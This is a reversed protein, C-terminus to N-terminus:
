KQDPLPLTDPTIFNGSACMAHYMDCTTCPIDDRPPQQGSLMARAYVMKESNISKTLGDSFVNAGFDGWFNRCCGLIKGDWNIQPQVWLQHCIGSLYKRNFAQEYEERSVPGGGIESRVLEKDRIPSFKGWSLKPWFEMGLKAAMARAAPIEHENHGFVIFQWILKPLDCQYQRKWANLKEINRIVQDFNGRVRYTRYTEPSAGDISCTMLRVQYKVLAELAEDRANNLNVGNRLTIAVGCRHAYELIQLLQPNLFAEGYNSLEIQRLIPNLDVLKRFDEL